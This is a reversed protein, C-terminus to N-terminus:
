SALDGATRGAGLPRRSGGARPPGCSSTPRFSTPVSQARPQGGALLELLLNAAIAGMQYPDRQITALPPVLFESLPVEDCTVLSIDTPVECGASRLARLVGVLIQNSGAIVATPPDPEALLATTAREGHETTFAGSRVTCTVGLPRCVRRLTTARERAPRVTPRGNVLAVKNHGLAALHRAAAAIGASHDALVASARGAVRLERDVLVLPFTVKDLADKTGLSSEDSLSLLLGDVRRRAFLRVHSRDLEPKDMSNALLM